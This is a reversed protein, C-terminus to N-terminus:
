KSRKLVAQRVAPVALQALWALVLMLLLPGILVVCTFHQGEQVSAGVRASAEGKKRGGGGKEEKEEKGRRKEGEGKKGKM